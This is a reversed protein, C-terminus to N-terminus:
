HVVGMTFSGTPIDVFEIVPKEVSYGKGNNDIMETNRDVDALIATENSSDFAFNYAFFKLTILFALTKM